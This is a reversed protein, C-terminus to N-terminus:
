SGVAGDTCLVGNWAGRAGITSGDLQCCFTGTCGARSTTVACSSAQKSHTSLVILIM